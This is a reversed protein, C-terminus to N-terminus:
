NQRFSFIGHCQCFRTKQLLPLFGPEAGAKGQQYAYIIIFFNAAWAWRSPAM